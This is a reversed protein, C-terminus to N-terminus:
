HCGHRIHSWFSHGQGKNLPRILTTDVVANCEVNLIESVTVSLPKTGFSWWYSIAHMHPILHDWSRHRWTVGWLHQSATRDATKAVAQSRINKLPRVSHTVCSTVYYLWSSVQHTDLQSFWFLVTQFRSRDVKLLEIFV